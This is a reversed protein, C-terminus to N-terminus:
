VAMALNSSVPIQTVKGSAAKSAIAASILPKWKEILQLEGTLQFSEAANFFELLFDPKNKDHYEFSLLLKGISGSQSSRSTRIMFCQKIESLRICVKEEQGNEHKHYFVFAEDNETMGVAIPDSIEYSKINGSKPKAIETLVSKFYAVKKKKKISLIMMPVACIAIIIASMIIVNLDM